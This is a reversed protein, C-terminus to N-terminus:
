TSSWLTGTPWTPRASQLWCPACMWSAKVPRWIPVTVGAVDALAQDGGEIRKATGIHPVRVASKPSIKLKVDLQRAFDEQYAFWRDPWSVDWSIFGSGGLRNVFDALVGRIKNGVKGGIVERTPVLLHAHWNLPSESDPRHMAAQCIYRHVRLGRRIFKKSSRTTRCRQFRGVFLVQAAFNV